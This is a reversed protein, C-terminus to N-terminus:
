LLLMHQLSPRPTLLVCDARGSFGPKVGAGMDPLDCNDTQLELELIDPVEPRELVLVLPCM